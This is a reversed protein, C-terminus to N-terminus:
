EKIWANFGDVVQQIVQQLNNKATDVVLDYNQMDYPYVDYLAKYRRNESELREKLDKAYEVPDRHVHETNLRADDMADLIRQAATELDLDLFIKYSYPMWHWAMRSDIVKNNEGAGIDQLKGDVLHDIETNQEATLNAQFVDIGLDKGIARFLDGSSFHDFGLRHAVGKATSSKGSGPRGAITVIHKKQM